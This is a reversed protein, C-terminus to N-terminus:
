EVTIGIIPTAAQNSVNPIIQEKCENCFAIKKGDVILEKRLTYTNVGAAGAVM